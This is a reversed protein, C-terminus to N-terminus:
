GAPRGASAVPGGPGIADIEANMKADVQPLLEMILQGKFLSTGKPIIVIQDGSGATDPVRIEGSLLPPLLGTTM